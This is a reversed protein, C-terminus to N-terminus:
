IGAVRRRPRRIRIDEFPAELGWTERSLPRKQQREVEEMLLAAWAEIARRQQEWLDSRQYVAMVGPMTASAAHNLLRDVVAPEWGRDALISVVTRRIDHLWGDKVKAARLLARRVDTWGAVAKNGRGAFVLAAKGAARSARVPLWRLLAVAPPSLPIRTMRLHKVTVAPLLVHPGVAADELVVHEWLLRQAESRRCATLLMFRVLAGRRGLKGAGIWLAGAEALSFRRERPRPREQKVAWERHWAVKIGQEALWPRAFRALRSVLTRLMHATSHGSMRDLLGELREPDFGGVTEGALFPRLHKAEIRLLEREYLGSRGERLKRDRDAELTARFADLVASLPLGHRRAEEAERAARAAEARREAVLDRGAAAAARLARAEARAQEPNVAPYEGLGLWRQRRDGKVRYKVVFSLGDGKAQRRVGFGPVEDDWVVERTVPAGNNRGDRWRRSLDDLSRKGLKM